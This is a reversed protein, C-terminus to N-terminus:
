RHISSSPFRKEVLSSKNKQKIVEEPWASVACSGYVTLVGSLASFIGNAQLPRRLSHQRRTM